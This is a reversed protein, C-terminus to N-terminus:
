GSIVLSVEVVEGDRMVARIATNERGPIGWVSLLLLPGCNSEFSHRSQNKSHCLYEGIGM